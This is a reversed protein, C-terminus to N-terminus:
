RWQHSSFSITKAEWSTGNGAVLSRLDRTAPFPVSHSTFVMSNDEGVLPPSCHAKRLKWLKAAALFVTGFNLFHGKRFKSVTKKVATFNHLNLFAWQEGGSTPSSLEITKVECETGNGAAQSRGESTAPFLVKGNWKSWVLSPLCISMKNGLPSCLSILNMFYSSLLRGRIFLDCLIGM